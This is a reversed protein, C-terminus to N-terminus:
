KKRGFILALLAALWNPKPPAIVEAVREKVAEVNAADVEFWRNGWTRPLGTDVHIFGSREYFGFGTFGVAIAAALFTAPDHNRMQVDFAKAKLHQSNKAGGVHANYAPSRYASTLYLPNGLMIRLAQLKDMSDPDIMLKGDGKSQMESPAFNKWRWKSQPYDKWSDYEKNM